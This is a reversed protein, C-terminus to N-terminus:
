KVEKSFKDLQEQIIAKTKASVEHSNLGEYEEYKMLPHVHVYVRYRKWPISKLINCTNYQTAILIDAKPKMALKFAGSKFEIMENHFSRKGEPFIGMSTGKKYNRIGKIISEAASRDANRSIFVNGLVAIWRGFIPMRTLAEKAIFNLIHYRFIPKLVIIDYNEQHNSILVFNKDPSPINEKGSVIVKVRLLHLGLSLLSNAFRHNFKDDIDKNRRLLGVIEVILIQTLFSIVFSILIFLVLLIYLWPNSPNTFDLNFLLAFLLTYLVTFVYYIFIFM